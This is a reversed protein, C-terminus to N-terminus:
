LCKVVRRNRKARGTEGSKSVRPTSRNAYFTLTSM